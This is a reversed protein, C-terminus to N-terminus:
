SMSSYIKIKSIKAKAIRMPDVNPNPSEKIKMGRAAMKKSIWIAMTKIPNQVVIKDVNLVILYLCYKSLVSILFYKTGPIRPTIMPARSKTIAGIGIISSERPIKITINM